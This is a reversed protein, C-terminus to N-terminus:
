HVPPVAKPKSRPGLIGGGGMIGLKGVASFQQNELGPFDGSGAVLGAELFLPGTNWDLALGGYTWGKGDSAFMGVIPAV